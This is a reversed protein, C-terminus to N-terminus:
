EPKYIKKNGIAPRKKALEVAKELLELVTVSKGGHSNPNTVEAWAMMLAPIVAMIENTM